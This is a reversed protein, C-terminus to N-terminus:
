DARITKVDFRKVEQLFPVKFHLGAGHITESAKGFTTLLSKEGEKNTYFGGFVISLAVLGIGAIAAAKKPHEVIWDGIPSDTVLKGNEIM